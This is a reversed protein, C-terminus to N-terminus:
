RSASGLASRLAPELQPHEFRHGLVLAKAPVMRAGATVIEAMDGYLARLAVGPVPLLAPRKLVRGLTRSFDGNSVPEPASANVPGSWREDEIAAVMLGLLDEAHIWPIYQRGGAVPGGVGLRFPPLMKALAGGSADLVVGTRIRAVRVGLEGARDAEAEWEVCVQALFDEGPSAEEDLPEEGRRGYYGSASSSVLVRPREGADAGLLRLGEVLNRTGLVRSDRIARKVSASWRQAVPEGALNVVADRGALAAPPAPEAASDWRVADVDGLKERARAPDRTLVTAEWGRERLAAILRSGILGSAGTVTLRRASV